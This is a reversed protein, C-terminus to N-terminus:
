LNKNGKGDVDTEAEETKESKEAKEKKERKESKKKEKKESKRKEKAKREEKAKRAEEKQTRTIPPATMKTSEWMQWICFIGAVILLLVAGKRAMDEEEPTLAAKVAKELMTVCKKHGKEEAYKLPSIGKACQVLPYAGAGLLKKVIMSHGRYSALILPTMGFVGEKQELHFETSAILMMVVTTNGSWVACHLPNWTAQIKEAIKKNNPIDKAKCVAEKMKEYLSKEEGEEGEAAAAADGGAAPASAADDAHALAVLVLLLLAKRPM